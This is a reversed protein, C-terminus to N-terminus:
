EWFILVVAAVGLIMGIIQQISAHEKYFVIGIVIALIASAVSFLVAGRGLGSGNRLAVLWFANAAVYFALALIALWSPKGLSWEKATIDAFIEFVVLLTLPFIWKKM